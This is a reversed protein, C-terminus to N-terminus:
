ATNKMTALYASCTYITLQLVDMQLHTKVICNNRKGYDSQVAVVLSNWKDLYRLMNSVIKNAAQLKFYVKLSRTARKHNSLYKANLNFCYHVKLFSSRRDM